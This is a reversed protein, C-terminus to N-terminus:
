FLVAYRYRFTEKKYFCTCMKFFYQVAIQQKNLAHPIVTLNMRYLFLEHGKLGEGFKFFLKWRADDAPHM